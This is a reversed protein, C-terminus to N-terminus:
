DMFADLLTPERLAPFGGAAKAHYWRYGDQWMAPAAAASLVTGALPTRGERWLRPGGPTAAAVVIGTLKGVHHHRGLQSFVGDGRPRRKRDARAIEGYEVGNFEHLLVQRGDDPPLRGVAWDIVGVIGEHGGRTAVAVGDPTYAIM